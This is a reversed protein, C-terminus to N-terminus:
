ARMDFSYRHVLGDSSGTDSVPTAGLFDKVFDSKPEGCAVTSSVTYGKASLRRTLIDLNNEILQMSEESELNWKCGVKTDKLSVFIDTSGLYEMDFHLFATIEEGDEYSNKKNQRVYLMGDTNQNYMKLPIQVFNYMENASNMFNINQKIEHTQTKIAEADKGSFNSILRELADTQKLVREYLKTLEGPKSIDKPELAFSDSIINRLLGKYIPSKIIDNMTEKSINPNENFYNTIAAFLDKIGADARLTGSESFIQLNDKPFDPLNSLLASFSAVQKDTSFANITQTGSEVSESIGTNDPLTSQNAAPAIDDSRIQGAVSSTDTNGSQNFVIDEKNASLNQIDSTNANISVTQNNNSADFSVIADGTEASGLQESTNSIVDETKIEAASVQINGVNDALLVDNSIFIDKLSNNIAIVDASSVEDSVMLDSLATTITDFNSSIAAKDGAYNEFMAVNDPTIEMGVKTMTVLTQPTVDPNNIMARNMAALSEPNISLSEQMMTNVMNITRDTAVINALDLAKLLTPNAQLGGEISVPRIQILNGDNSKVQFFVSQGQSLSVGSDLRATMTQGNALGIIVKGNEVSNVTGEFVEGQKLSSAISGTLSQGQSMKTVDSGTIYNNLQNLGNNVNM